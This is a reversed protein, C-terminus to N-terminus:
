EDGEGYADAESEKVCKRLERIGGRRLAEICDQAVEEPTEDGTTADLARLYLELATIATTM